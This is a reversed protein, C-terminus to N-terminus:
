GIKCLRGGFSSIAAGSGLSSYVFFAGDHVGSTADGGVAFARSANDGPTGAYFYDGGYSADSQKDDAPM